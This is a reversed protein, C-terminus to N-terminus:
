EETKEKKLLFSSDFIMVGNEGIGSSISLNINKIKIPYSFDEIKKCYNLFSDYNGSLTITYDVEDIEKQEASYPTAGKIQIQQQNGTEETIKELASLLKAIETESYLFKNVQALYPKATEYENYLQTKRENRVQIDEITQKKSILDKGIKDIKQSFFFSFFIGLGLVAIAAIIRFLVNRKFKVKNQIM